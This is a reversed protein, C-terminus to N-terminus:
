GAPVLFEEMTLFKRGMILGLATGGVVVGFALAIPDLRADVGWHM